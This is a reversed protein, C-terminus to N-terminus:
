SWVRSIPSLKRKRGAVGATTAAQAAHGVRRWDFRGGGEHGGGRLGPLAGALAEGVHAGDDTADDRGAIGQEGGILQQWEDAGGVAADGEGGDVTGEAVQASETQEVLAAAGVVFAAVGDDRGLAGTGEGAGDGNDAAVAAFEMREFRGAEGQAFGGAHALSPKIRAFEVKADLGVALREASMAM